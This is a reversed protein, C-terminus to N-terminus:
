RSQVHKMSQIHLNMKRGPILELVLTGAQITLILNRNRNKEKLEEGKHVNM